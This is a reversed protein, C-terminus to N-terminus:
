TKEWACSPMTGLPFATFRGQSLTIRSYKAAPGLELNAAAATGGAATHIKKKQGGTTHLIIRMSSDVNIIVVNM